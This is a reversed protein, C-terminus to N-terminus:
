TGEDPIGFDRVCAYRKGSSDLKYVAVVITGLNRGDHLDILADVEKESRAPEITLDQSTFGRSPVITVLFTPLRPRGDTREKPARSAPM